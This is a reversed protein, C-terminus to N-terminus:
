PQIDFILREVISDQRIDMLKTMLKLKTVDSIEDSTVITPGM